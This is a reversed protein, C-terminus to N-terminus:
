KSVGWFRPWNLEVQPPLGQLAPSAIDYVFVDGPKIVPVQQYILAQIDNWIQKRAAPDVTGALAAELPEKEPSVWWGPYNDNMFTYLIPDPVMGHTTEFIDWLEPKARREVLTAWDYVQFEINFGAAKLQREFVQGTDYHLPYSSSVMFNIPEGTYGAEAAMQKAKEPDGKQPYNETGADTYWYTDAPYIAG